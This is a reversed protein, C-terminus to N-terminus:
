VEDNSGTNLGKRHLFWTVNYDSLRLFETELKRHGASAEVVHEIVVVASGPTSYMLHLRGRPNWSLGEGEKLCYLSVDVGQTLDHQAAIAKVVEGKPIPEKSLRLLNFVLNRGLM